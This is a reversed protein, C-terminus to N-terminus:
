LGCGYVVNFLRFFIIIGCHPYKLTAAVCPSKFTYFFMCLLLLHGDLNGQPFTSTWFNLFMGSILYLFVFLQLQLM